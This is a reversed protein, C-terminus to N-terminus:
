RRGEFSSARLVREYFWEEFGDRVERGGRKELPGDAAAIMDLGKLVSMVHELYTRTYAPDSLASCQHYSAEEKEEKTIKKTNDPYPATSSAILNQYLTQSDFAIDLPPVKVADQGMLKNRSSTDAM